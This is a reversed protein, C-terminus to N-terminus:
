APTNYWDNYTVSYSGNNNNVKTSSGTPALVQGNLSLQFYSDTAKALQNAAQRSAAPVTVSHNVTFPTNAACTLGNYQAVGDCSFTLPNGSLTFPLQMGKPAPGMAAAPLVVALSALIVLSVGLVLRRSHRM